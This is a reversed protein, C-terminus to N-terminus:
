AHDGEGLSRELSSRSTSPQEGARPPATRSASPPPIPAAAAAITALVGDVNQLVARAPVRLTEVGNRMLWADRVEDRRPRDSVGHSYGDVEVALRASACFFDLIYPGMPHQRRFRLGQLQRRRLRSWLMREPLDVNRRLDRARNRTLTSREM